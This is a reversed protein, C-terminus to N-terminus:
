VSALIKLLVHDDGCDAGWGPIDEIGESNAVARVLFREEHNIAVSEVRVNRSM